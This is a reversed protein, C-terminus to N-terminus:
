DTFFVLAPIEAFGLTDPLRAGPAKCHPEEGEDRLTIIAVLDYVGTKSIPDVGVRNGPITFTQEYCRTTISDDGSGKTLVGSKVDVVQCDVLLGTPGPAVGDIDDIYVCVEWCGCIMPVLVGCICWEVVVNWAEGTEVIRIRENNESPDFVDVSISADLQNPCGPQDSGPTIFGAISDFIQPQPCPPPSMKEEKTLHRDKTLHRTVL